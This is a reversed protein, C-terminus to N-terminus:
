SALRGHGGPLTSSICRKRLDNADKQEKRSIIKHALWVLYPPSTSSGLKLDQQDFDANVLPLLLTSFSVNVLPKQNLPTSLNMAMRDTGLMM